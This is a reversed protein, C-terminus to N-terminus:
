ARDEVPADTRMYAHRITGLAHVLCANTDLAFPNIEVTGDISGPSCYVNQERGLPMYRDGPAKEALRQSLWM